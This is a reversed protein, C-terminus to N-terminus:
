KFNQLQGVGGTPSPVPAGFCIPGGRFSPVRIQGNGFINLRKSTLPPPTPSKSWRYIYRGVGMVSNNIFFHFKKEHPRHTVIHLAPIKKPVGEVPINILKIYKWAQYIQWIITLLWSTTVKQKQTFSSWIKWVISYQHFYIFFTGVKRVDANFIV